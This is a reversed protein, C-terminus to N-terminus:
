LSCAKIGTEVENEDILVVTCRSGSRVCDANVNCMRFCKGSIATAQLCITGAVCQSSDECTGNEAVNGAPACEPEFNADPYCGQNAACGCQPGVLKCPAESCAPTVDVCGTPKCEQNAACLASNPTNTCTDNTGCSDVTCAVSDNCSQPTCMPGSMGADEVVIPGADPEGTDGDNGDGPLGDSGDATGDSGDEPVSADPGADGDGGPEGDAGPDGDDITDIGQGDEEANANDGDVVFPNDEDSAESV